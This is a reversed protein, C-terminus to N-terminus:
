SQRNENQKRKEAVIRAFGEIEGVGRKLGNGATTLAPSRYPESEVVEYLDDLGYEKLAEEAKKSEKSGDSFLTLGNQEIWAGMDSSPKEINKGSM